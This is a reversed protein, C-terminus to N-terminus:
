AHLRLSCLILDKGEEMSIVSYGSPDKNEEEKLLAMVQYVLGANMIIMIDARYPPRLINRLNQLNSKMEM